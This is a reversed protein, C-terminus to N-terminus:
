GEKQRKAVSDPSVHKGGGNRIHVQWWSPMSRLVWALNWVVEPLIVMGSRGSVIREFVREAVTDVHLWPTLFTSPNTVGQTLQTKTWGPCVCITRVKPANYRANLEAALGEHLAVAASKTCSYPVIQPAPVASAISAITVVTGHNAAVMAPVFERILRFHSLINVDFVKQVSTETTSLLTLGSAIGANNILITPNGFSSRISSATDSVASPSTIDCSYFHINPALFSTDTFIGRCPISFPEPTAIRPEFTLPQVDLIAITAGKEALLLAISKGIGGSGGTIVVIEKSWEYKSSTWNNLASTSLLDNLWRIVGFYVLVKLRSLAVEHGQTLKRGQGTYLSLLYLPLTLTPNLTTNRFLRLLVDATFGERPLWGKRVPM